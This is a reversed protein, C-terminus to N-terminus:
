ITILSMISLLSSSSSFLLLFVSTERRQFEWVNNFKMRKEIVLSPSIVILGKFSLSKLWKILGSHFVDNAVAKGTSQEREKMQCLNIKESLMSRESFQSSQEQYQLLLAKRKQRFQKSLWRMAEKPDM